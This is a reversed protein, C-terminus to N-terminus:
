ILGLEEDLETLKQLAELRKQISKSNQPTGWEVRLKDLLIEVKANDYFCDYETGVINKYTAPDFESLTNMLIQGYRLYNDPQQSHYQREVKGILDDLKM